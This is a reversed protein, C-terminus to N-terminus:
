KKKPERSKFIKKWFTKQIKEFYEDPEKLIKRFIGPLQIKLNEQAM